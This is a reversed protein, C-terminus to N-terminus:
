ELCDAGRAFQICKKAVKLTIEQCFFNFYYDGEHAMILFHSPILITHNLLRNIYTTHTGIEEATTKLVEGQVKLSKVSKSEGEQLHHKYSFTALCFFCKKHQWTSINEM